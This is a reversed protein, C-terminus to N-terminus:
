EAGSDVGCVHSETGPQVIGLKKVRFYLTARNLGSRIAAGRPGSLAWRTETLTTLIHEREVESPRLSTAEGFDIPPDNPIFLDRDGSCSSPFRELGM